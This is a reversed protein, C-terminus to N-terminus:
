ADAYALLAFNTAVYTITQDWPKEPYDPSIENPTAPANYISLKFRGIEHGNTTDLIEVHSDIRKINFVLCINKSPHAALCINGYGDSSSLHSYDKTWLKNGKFDFCTLRMNAGVVLVKQTIPLVRELPRLVHDPGAEFPGLPDWGKETYKGLINGTSDFVAMGGMDIGGYLYVGYRGDESFVIRGEGEWDFLKIEKITKGTDDMFKLTGDGGIEPIYSIGIFYRGDPAPVYYRNDSIKAKEKGGSDYITWTKSLPIGRDYEDVKYEYEQMLVGSNEEFIDVHTRRYKKNGIKDDVPKERPSIKKKIEKEPNGQKGYVELGEINKDIWGRGKYKETKLEQESRYERILQFKATEKGTETSKKIETKPEDKPNGNDGGPLQAFLSACIIFGACLFIAAKKM